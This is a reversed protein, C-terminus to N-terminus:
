DRKLRPMWKPVLRKYALYASGHRTALQREEWPGVLVELYLITAPLMIWLLRSQIVVIEAAVVLTMAIAQPNRAYHYPGSTVLEKTPDFPFPTGRGREILYYGSVLGLPVGLLFLAAGLLPWPMERLRIELRGQELTVIFAPLVVLWGGAVFAVYVLARLWLYTRSGRQEAM